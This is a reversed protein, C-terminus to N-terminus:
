QRSTILLNLRASDYKSSNNMAVSFYLNEGKKIDIDQATFAASQGQNLHGYRIIEASNNKLAWNVGDGCCSRDIASIRGTINIKGGIPSQWRIIVPVNDGPHMFPAEKVHKVSRYTFTETAIGIIPAFSVHTNRWCKLPGVGFCTSSYDPLLTYNAPDDSGSINQMFAWVGRSNLDIHKAMASSLNWSYIKEAVATNILSLALVTIFAATKLM